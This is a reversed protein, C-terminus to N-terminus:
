TFGEEAKKSSHKHLLSRFFSVVGARLHPQSTGQEEGEAERSLAQDEDPQDEPSRELADLVHASKRTVFPARTVLPQRTFLDSLYAINAGLAIHDHGKQEV